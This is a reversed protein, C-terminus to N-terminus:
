LVAIFLKAVKVEHVTSTRVGNKSALMVEIM